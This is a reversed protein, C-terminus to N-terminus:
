NRSIKEWGEIEGPVLKFLPHSIFQSILKFDQHRKPSRIALKQELHKTEFILQQTTLDLSLNPEFKLLKLRQFKYGRLDAEDAIGHLYNSIALVPEPSNKFRTLQSHHRYGQTFGSLVHLALLGERWVAVLGKQDLYKPHLSWLRM